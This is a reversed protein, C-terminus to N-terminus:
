RGGPLDEPRDADHLVGPTPCAVERVRDARLRLLVRLGRDLAPTLLVGAWAGPLILPHGRRGGHSAVVAQQPDDCFAEVCARVDAATLAPMDAPCILLGAADPLGGATVSRVAVRISDIMESDPDDNILVDVGRQQLQPGLAADVQRNAVVLLRDVGGARLVDLLRLLMPEGDIEILPKCRGMRRSQGAAPVIAVIECGQRM